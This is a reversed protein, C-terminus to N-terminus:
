GDCNPHGVCVILELVLTLELKIPELGSMKMYTVSQIIFKSNAYAEPKLSFTWLRWGPPYAWGSM